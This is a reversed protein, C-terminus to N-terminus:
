WSEFDALFQEMMDAPAAEFRLKPPYYSRLKAHVCYAVKGGQGVVIESMKKTLVLRDRASLREELLISYPLAWYVTCHRLNAHVDCRILTIPESHICLSADGKASLEELCQQATALIRHQEAQQRATPGTDEQQRLPKRTNKHAQIQLTCSNLYPWGERIVSELTKNRSRGVTENGSSNDATSIATATSATPTVTTSFDRWVSSVPASSACPEPAVVLLVKATMANKSSIQRRQPKLSQRTLSQSIRLLPSKICCSMNTYNSTFPSSPTVTPGRAAVTFSKIIGAM